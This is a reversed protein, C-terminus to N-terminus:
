TSESQISNGRYLFDSQNRVANALTFQFTELSNLLSSSRYQNAAQGFVIHIILSFISFCYNIYVQQLGQWENFRMESLTEDVISALVQM